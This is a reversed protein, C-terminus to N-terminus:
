LSELEAFAPACLRTSLDRPMEVSEMSLVRQSVLRDNSLEVRERRLEM